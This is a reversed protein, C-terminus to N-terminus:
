ARWGRASLKSALPESQMAVTRLAVAFGALFPLIGTYAIHDFFTCVAYVVLATLLCIGLAHIDRHAPDGRTLAFIRYTTRFSYLLVACYAIFAPFGCESAVQTYSNHTGLWNSHKGKKEAEGSVAVPFEGPGVGFLPHTFAMTISQRLLQERQLRSDIAAREEDTTAQYSEPQTFALKLRDRTETSVFLLSPLALAATILVILIKHRSLVTIAGALAIAGVLGGRSGTKLVYVLSLGIALIAFARLPLRGTYVLFILATIGFLVQMALENANSFFLSGEIAFRTGSSSGFAFCSVLLLVSAVVQVRMLRSLQPRTVTFATVYYFLIWNRFAYNVVTDFSGGRWVSFPLDIFLWILYFLWIKGERSRASRALTGSALLVFPLIVETITSIYAKTHFLRVTLDNAYGSLLYLCMLVYGARQMLSATSAPQAIAPRSPPAANADTAPIVAPGAVNFAPSPGSVAQANNFRGM